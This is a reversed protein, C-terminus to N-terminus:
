GFGIRLSEPPCEFRQQVLEIRRPNGQGPDFHPVFDVDGTKIGIDGDWAAPAHQAYVIVVVGAFASACATAL